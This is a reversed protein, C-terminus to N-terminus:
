LSSTDKRGRGGARGRKGSEVKFDGGEKGETGSEKWGDM